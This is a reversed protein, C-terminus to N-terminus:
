VLKCTGDPMVKFIHTNFSLTMRISADKFGYRTRGEAALEDVIATGGRSTIRQVLFDKIFPPRTMGWNKLAYVGPKICVFKSESQIIRGHVSHLNFPAREPFLVNMKDVIHTFHSPQGIDLLAKAAMETIYQPNFCDWARLCVHGSSDFGVVESLDIVRKALEMLASADYKQLESYVQGFSAPKGKSIAIHKLNEEIALFKGELEPASFVLNGKIHFSTTAHAPHIGFVTSIFKLALDDESEDDPLLEEIKAIGQNESLYEGVQRKHTKSFWKRVSDPQYMGRVTIEAKAQIQRVRERTLAFNEGLEVLTTKDGDWFGWRRSIIERDRESPLLSVIYEVFEKPSLSDIKPLSVKDPAALFEEIFAVISDGAKKSFSLRRTRLIDFITKLKRSRFARSISPPLILSFVDTKQALEVEEPTLQRKLLKSKFCAEVRLNEFGPLAQEKEATEVAAGSPVGRVNNKWFKRIERLTHIGCGQLVVLPEFGAEAAAKLKGITTIGARLLANRARSGLMYDLDSIKDEDRM